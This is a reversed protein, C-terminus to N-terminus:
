PVYEWHYQGSSDSRLVFSSTTGWPIGLIRYEVHVKLKSGNKFREPGVLGPFYPAPSECTVSLHGGHFMWSAFDVDGEHHETPERGETINDEMHAGTGPVFSSACFAKVNPLPIYGDYVVKFSETFPDNAQVAYNPDISFWPYLALLTVIGSAGGVMTWFKLRKRKPVPPQPTTPPANPLPRQQEAIRQDAIKKQEARNAEEALKQKKQRERKAQKRQKAIRQQGTTTKQVLKSGHAM